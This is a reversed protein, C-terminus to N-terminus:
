FRNGFVQANLQIGNNEDVLYRGNDRDQAVLTYAREQKKEGEGYVLVYHFKHLSDTPQLQFEMPVKQVGMSTDIELIGQYNGFYKEPFELEENEQTYCCHSGVLILVIIQTIIKM